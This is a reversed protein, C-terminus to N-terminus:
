SSPAEPSPWRQQQHLPRYASAQVRWLKLARNVTTVNDTFMGVHFAAETMALGWGMRTLGASLWHCTSAPSCTSSGHSAQPLGSPLHHRTSSSREQEPGSLARGAQWSAQLSARPMARTASCRHGPTWSRSQRRPTASTKRPLGSCPTRTPQEATRNKPGPQLPTARWPHPRTRHTTSAASCSTVTRTQRQRTATPRSLAAAHTTYVFVSHTPERKAAVGARMADLQARSVMIGPHVYGAHSGAGFVSCCGAVLVWWQVQLLRAPVM